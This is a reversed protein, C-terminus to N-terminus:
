ELEASLFDDEAIGYKENLINLINLKVTESGGDCKLQRSGIIINLEEGAIGESLTRKGQEAGLHPLIDSIMFRPEGDKEGVCVDVQTGDSLIVTGHLSLPMVPWQYKKIGGYYHPKFYAIEDSEYVPQPKLDLRPSDIHAAAIRVGDLLSKKGIVALIVAKGRNNVYVKDGAAYKKSKDFRSFGNKEAVSVAYKVCERETKCDTLFSMYGACFEDAANIEEDSLIGSAHKKKSLLRQKLEEYDSM